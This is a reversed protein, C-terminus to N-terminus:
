IRKIAERQRVSTWLVGASLLLLFDNVAVMEELNNLSGGNMKSASCGM